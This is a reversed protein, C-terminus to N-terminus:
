AEGGLEGRVFDVIQAEHGNVYEYVTQSPNLMFAQRLLATEDEDINTTQVNAFSNLEDESGETQSKQVTEERKVPPEGLTESRMGIVHQCLQAALKETPFLGGKQARRLAVVSVFKGMNVADNGERPHSAAYLSSDKPAYLARVSRVSINEGLKGVAMAVMESLPKGNSDVLTNLDLDTAVISAGLNQPSNKRAHLLVSEVLNELLNKFHDGRAVFDTECSLEVIAGVSGCSKAAILGQTTARSSLKAAKAWGESKAKERLWKEAETLNDPGFELLAKRCNVYSYGTRKRLKMLAEKDVSVPAAAASSLCRRMLSVPVPGYLLRRLM